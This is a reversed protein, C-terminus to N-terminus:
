PIPSSEIWSLGPTSIIQELRFGARSLVAEWDEQTREKSGFLILMHLDLMRGLDMKSGPVIVAEFLV